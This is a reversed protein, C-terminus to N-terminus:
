SNHRIDLSFDSPLALHRRVGRELPGGDAPWWARAASLYIRCRAPRTAQRRRGSLEFTLGCLCAM